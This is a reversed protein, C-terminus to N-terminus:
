CACWHSHVAARARQDAKIRRHVQARGNLVKEFNLIRQAREAAVLFLHRLPSFRPNALAHKGNRFPRPESEFQIFVPQARMDSLAIRPPASPPASRRRTIPSLAPEWHRTFSLATTRCGPFWSTIM